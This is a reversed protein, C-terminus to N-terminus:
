LKSIKPLEFRHYLVDMLLDGMIQLSQPSCKDPTDSTTHYWPYDFDILDICPIGAKLLPLHDDYLYYMITDNFCSFGLNHAKAWIFDVLQPAYTCSFGEKYLKLDQDAVMDLLIGLHPQYNGKNKAFYKSGLCFKDVQSEPGWDEGDFFILDVGWPPEEESLIRAVELMIAVGSAGDNAGLIPQSRLSSDPDHDAMPRTDWHACLLIREKKEPYFSAIINTLQLDLQKEEDRYTFEQTKVLPTYGSLRELLYKRAKEHGVSGPYRPGMQCQETIYTFARPADFRPVTSSSCSGLLVFLLVLCFVM